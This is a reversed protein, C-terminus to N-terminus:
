IYIKIAWFGLVNNILELDQKIANCSGRHHHAMKQSFVMKTTNKIKHM